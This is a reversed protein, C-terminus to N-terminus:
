PTLGALSSRHLGKPDVMNREVDVIDLSGDGEVGLAKAACQSCVPRVKTDVPRPDLKTRALDVEEFSRKRCMDALM